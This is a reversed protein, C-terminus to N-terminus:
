INDYLYGKLVYEPTVIRIEVEEYCSFIFNCFLEQLYFVKLETGDSSYVEFSTISHIDIDPIIISSETILCTLPRSPMRTGEYGTEDHYETSGNPCRQLMMTKSNSDAARVNLPILGVFAVVSLIFLFLLNRM